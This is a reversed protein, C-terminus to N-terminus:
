RSGDMKGMNLRFFMRARSWNLHSWAQITLIVTFNIRKFIWKLYKKIIPEVEGRLLSEQINYLEQYYAEIEEWDAFDQEYHNADGVTYGMGAKGETM